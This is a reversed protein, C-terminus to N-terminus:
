IDSLLSDLDDDLMFSETINRNSERKSNTELYLRKIDELNDDTAFGIKSIFRYSDTDSLYRYRNTCAHSPGNPMNNGTKLPEEIKINAPNKKKDLHGKDKHTTGIIVVVPKQNPIRLIIGPRISHNKIDFEFWAIEGDKLEANRRLRRKSSEDVPIYCAYDKDSEKGWYWPDLAVFEEIPLLGVDIM